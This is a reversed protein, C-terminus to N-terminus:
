KGLGNEEIIVSTLKAYEDIVKRFGAADRYVPGFGAESM